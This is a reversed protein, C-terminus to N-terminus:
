VNESIAKSNKNKLDIRTISEEEDDFSRFNINMDDGMSLDRM